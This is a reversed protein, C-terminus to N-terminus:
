YSPSLWLLPTMSDQFHTLVSTVRAPQMLVKSSQRITEAIAAIAKLRSERRSWGRERM